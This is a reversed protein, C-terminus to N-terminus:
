SIRDNGNKWIHAIILRLKKQVARTGNLNLLKELAQKQNMGHSLFLELAINEDNSLESGHNTENKRNEGRDTGQGKNLPMTGESQENDTLNRQSNGHEILSSNKFAKHICHIEWLSHLLSHNGEAISTIVERIHKKLWYADPYSYDEPSCCSQGAAENDIGTFQSHPIKDYDDDTVASLFEPIPSLGCFSAAKHLDCRCLDSLIETEVTLNMSSIIFPLKLRFLYAANLLLKESPKLKKYSATKKEQHYKDMNNNLYERVDSTVIIKESVNESVAGSNNMYINNKPLTEVTSLMMLSRRGSANDPQLGLNVPIFNNHQWFAATGKNIAFSAGIYSAGTCYAKERIRSLIGSAVGKRRYEPIVAIREVRLYKYAAAETIGCQTILVQPCLNNKPQRTGNMIEATLNIDIPGESTVVAVGTMLIRHNGIGNCSQLFSLLENETDSYRLHTKESISNIYPSTICSSAPSKGNNDRNNNNNNLYKRFANKQCDTVQNLTGNRHSDMTKLLDEDPVKIAFVFFTEEQEIWRILDQLTQEYHNDKLLSNISNLVSQGAVTKLLERGSSSFYIIDSSHVCHNNDSNRHSKMVPVSNINGTKVINIPHKQNHVHNHNVIHTDPSNFFITDIIEAARDHHHRHHKSLHFSQIEYKGYLYNKVGMASGEYGSVTTVLITNKFNKLIKELIALPIAAAEEIILLDTKNVYECYNEITIHFIGKISEYAPLLERSGGNLVGPKFMKKVLIDVLCRAATTKGSGRNGNLHLIFNRGSLLLQQAYTIFAQQEDDLSFFDKDTLSLNENRSAGKLPHMSPIKQSHNLLSEVTFLSFVGPLSYSKFFSQLIQPVPTMVVLVGTRSLCGFLSYIQNANFREQKIIVIDRTVGLYLQLNNLNVPVPIVRDSLDDNELARIDAIRDNAFFLIDKGPDYDPEHSSLADLTVSLIRFLSEGHLPANETDIFVVHRSIM